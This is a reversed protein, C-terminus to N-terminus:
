YGKVTYDIEFDFAAVRSVVSEVRGDAHLSLSRYGPSLSDVSFEDSKPTFQICTSPTAFFPINNRMADFHQHVHGWVVARVNSHQDIVSLFEDANQVGLNDLWAAGIPIPQHHLCVMTHLTKGLSLTKDLFDLTAESMFGPVAGEITSDLMIIQWAGIHIVPHLATSDRTAEQMNARIDHNGPIWYQPIALEDMMNRFRQYGAISADQVLDGTCLAIEYPVDNKVLALVRELSEQTNMGLLRGTVDQFLHCDSIQLVRIPM